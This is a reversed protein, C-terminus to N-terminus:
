LIVSFNSKQSIISSWDSWHTSAFKNVGSTGPPSVINTLNLLQCFCCHLRLLWFEWHYSKVNNHSMKERTYKFIRIIESHLIREALCSSVTIWHELEIGKRCRNWINDSSVSILHLCFILSCFPSALIYLCTRGRILSIGFSCVLGDPKM